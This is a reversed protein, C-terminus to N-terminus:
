KRKLAVYHSYGTHAILLGEPLPNTDDINSSPEGNAPFLLIGISGSEKLYILVIPIQLHAAIARFAPFQVYESNKSIIEPAVLASDTRTVIERATKSVEQRFVEMNAELYQGLVFNCYPDQDSLGNTTFWSLLAADFACNGFGPTPIAELQNGKLYDGIESFTLVESLIVSPDSCLDKAMRVYRNFREFDCEKRLLETLPFEAAFQKWLGALIPHQNPNKSIQGRLENIINRFSDSCEATTVSRPAADSPAEGEKESNEIGKNSELVSLALAMKLDEDETQQTSAAASAEAPEPNSAAELAETFAPNAWLSPNGEAMALLEEYSKGSYSPLSSSNLSSLQLSETMARALADEESLTGNLSRLLEVERQIRAETYGRKNTLIWKIIRENHEDQNGECLYAILRDTPESIYKPFNCRVAKLWPDNTNGACQQIYFSNYCNSLDTGEQFGCLREIMGIKGQLLPATVFAFFGIFIRIKM